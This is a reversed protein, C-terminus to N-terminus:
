DHRWTINFKLQGLAQECVGMASESDHGTAIAFAARERSSRMPPLADGPQKIVVLQDVNEIERATELHEVSQFGTNQDFGLGIFKVASTRKISKNELADNLISEGALQRAEYQYIDIGTSLEMLRFINDGGARSHTEVIRPGSETLIIETHTPGDTVGLASLVDDVYQNIQKEVQEDLQAPFIHGLEIFTIDDKLKETIGIIVHQGGESIAEVSFEPGTLYAEVLVPFGFGSERLKVLAPEIDEVGSLKSVGSSANGHLPKFMLPCQHEAVVEYLSDETHVIQFFTDDMDKLALQRRTEYKDNLTNVLELTHPYPISLLEAVVAADAQYTDNFCAIRQFHHFRHLAEAVAAYEQSSAQNDMLTLCQYPFSVDPVHSHEKRMLVVIDHGLEILSKHGPRVNGIVLIKM